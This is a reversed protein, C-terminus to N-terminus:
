RTYMVAGTRPDHKVGFTEAAVDGMDEFSGAQMAALAMGPPDNEPRETATLPAGLTTHPPLADDCERTIQPAMIGISLLRSLLLSRETELRNVHNALWDFNQQQVAARQRCEAVLLDATRVNAILRDVTERAMWM